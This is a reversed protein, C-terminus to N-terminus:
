TKVYYYMQFILRHDNDSRDYEYTSRWTLEPSSTYSFGGAVSNAQERATKTFVPQIELKLRNEELLNMGIRGLAAYSASGDKEGKRLDARLEFRDWLYAFDVGLFDYALARSDLIHYGVVDPIKGGTFYAGLNYNDRNLVGKSVRSSVVYSDKLLLPMGSGTTLSLAADGWSFDRSAGMGWDRDFGFGYMPLPQLLTGHTDFYSELGAAARNHGAWTYCYPTKLRLYANYLQPEVSPSGNDDWALRGQFALTGWDGTEDSLKQILDAGLSPKQMVDQQSMSYYVPKSMLSSYGGVAQAEFYLLRSDAFAQAGSSTILFLAFLKFRLNSIDL